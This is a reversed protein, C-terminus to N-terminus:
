AVPVFPTPRQLQRVASPSIAGQSGIAAESTTISTPKIRGIPMSTTTVSSHAAQATGAGGAEEDEVDDATRALADTGGLSGVSAVDRVAQAVRTSLRSTSAILM